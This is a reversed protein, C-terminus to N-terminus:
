AVVTCIRQVVIIFTIGDFEVLIQRQSGWVLQAIHEDVQIDTVNVPLESLVKHVLGVTRQINIYM